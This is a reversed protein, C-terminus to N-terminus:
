GDPVKECRRCATRNKRHCCGCLKLYRVLAKEKGSFNKLPETKSFKKEWSEKESKDSFIRFTNAIKQGAERIDAGFIDIKGISKDWM